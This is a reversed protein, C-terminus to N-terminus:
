LSRSVVALSVLSFVARDVLGVWFGKEKKKGRGKKRRGKKREPPKPDILAEFRGWKPRWL